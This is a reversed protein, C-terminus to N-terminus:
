ITISVDVTVNGTYTGAVPRLPNDAALIDAEMRIQRHITGNRRNSLLNVGGTSQFSLERITLIDSLAKWGSTRVRYNLEDTFNVRDDQATLARSGRLKADPNMSLTNAENCSVRFLNGQRTQNGSLLLANAGATTNIPLAGFSIDQVDELACHSAVTATIQFSDNAALAPSAAFAVAVAGFAFMKKMFM